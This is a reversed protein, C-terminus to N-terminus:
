TAMSSPWASSVPRISRRFFCSIWPIKALHASIRGGTSMKTSYLAFRKSLFVGLSGGSERPTKKHMSLPARSSLSFNFFTSMFM